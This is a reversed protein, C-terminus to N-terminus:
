PYFYGKSVCSADNTVSKSGEAGMEETALAWGREKQCWEAPSLGKMVVSFQLTKLLEEPARHVWHLHLHGFNGQISTTIVDLSQQTIFNLLAPAISRSSQCM